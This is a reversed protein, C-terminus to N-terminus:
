EMILCTGIGILFWQLWGDILPHPQWMMSLSVAAVGAERSAGCYLFCRSCVFDSPSKLIGIVNIKRISCPRAAIFAESSCTISAIGATEGMQM